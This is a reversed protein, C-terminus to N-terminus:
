LSLDLLIPCHDSGAVETLHRADAICGALRESAFFYDLRWGRNVARRNRRASWWTFADREDPHVHRFADVYGMDLLTLLLDRDDSAFGELEEGHHVNEAYVDDIDLIANFDGCIVAPKHADLSEVHSTLADNFRVRYGQRRLGDLSRPVYATVLYLAPYEATIVRGEADLAPDALGFAISIPEERTVLATGAYGDREAPNFHHRYGELVCPREKTRVEQICLADPALERVPELAGANLTARLGNVNWSVIRM